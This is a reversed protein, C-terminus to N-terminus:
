DGCGNYVLGANALTKPTQAFSITCDQFTALRSDFTAKDKHIVPRHTVYTDDNEFFECYPNWKLHVPIDSTRWNFM